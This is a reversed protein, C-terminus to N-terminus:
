PRRSSDSPSLAARRRYIKDGDTVYMWQRGEGGFFVGATGERFPTDVPTVHGQSDCVQVGSKTAVYLNGASDLAMGGPDEVRCVQRGNVLSGGAAIEFTWVWGTDVDNVVMSTGGTSVTVGRPWGLGEHVTRLQGKSDVMWVKHAPPETFYVENRPSVTLHHGQVGEVIVSEKGDSTYAIMRKLGHQGAYLRGDPGFAVGHAGQSGEKWVSIKGALDIRLIRNTRADTFYVIGDKDVASDATLQYGQGLLEWTDRQACSVLAACIALSLAALRPNM